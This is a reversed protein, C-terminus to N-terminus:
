VRPVQEKSPPPINVDYWLSGERIAFDVLEAFPGPGLWEAEGEENTTTTRIPREVREGMVDVVKTGFFKKCMIEHLEEKEYGSADSLIVYVVGWLYANAAPSRKKQHRTVEVSIAIDKRQLLQVLRAIKDTRQSDFDAPWYTQTLLKPISVPPPGARV